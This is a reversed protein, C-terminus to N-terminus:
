TQQVRAAVLRSHQLWGGYASLIEKM